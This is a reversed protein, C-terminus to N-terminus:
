RLRRRRVVCDISKVQLEIRLTVDKIGSSKGKWHLNAIRRWIKMYASNIIRRPKGAFVTWVHVNYVLTSVLISAALRTKTAMSIQAAGLVPNSILVLKATMKANRNHAETTHDGTPDVFGGLHKYRPVIILQATDGNPKTFAFRPENAENDYLQERAKKAGRGRYHITGETKGRKWNIQM